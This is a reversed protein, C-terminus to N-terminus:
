LLETQRARATAVWIVARRGSRTPRTRGSDEVLGLAVLEIRRPRETSPNLQLGNQLEEDTRGFDGAELIRALIWSRKSKTWGAAKEAAETSTESHRQHPLM